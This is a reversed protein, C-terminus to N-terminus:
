GTRDVQERAERVLRRQREILFPGANLRVLRALQETRRELRRLRRESEKDKRAMMDGKLKM